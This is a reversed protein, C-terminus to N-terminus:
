TPPPRPTSAPPHPPAPLPTSAPPHPPAPLPTSAPPHPPAPLPPMLLVLLVLLPPPPSLEGPGTGATPELVVFGVRADWDTSCRFNRRRGCVRRALRVQPYFVADFAGRRVTRAIELAGSLSVNSPVVHIVDFGSHDM